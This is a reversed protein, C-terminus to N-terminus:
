RFVVELETGGTERQRVTLYGGLGAARERMSRLGFGEPDKFGTEGWMGCGDDRVRLALGDDTRKLSVIVNEARGHRAANAIAERAIRAVHDRTSPELDADLRADVAIAIEFRARLEHAISELAEYTPTLGWDSLETITGRSLALARTAALAVPHEDGMSEALRESHAAIFALDQALGDHLDRAVRRREAIAAARAVGIRMQLELRVAGALILAFALLRL